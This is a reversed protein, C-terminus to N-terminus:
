DGPTDGTPSGTPAPSAPTDGYLELTWAGRDADSEIQFVVPGGPQWAFVQDVDSSDIVPMESGAVTHVTIFFIGDGRHVARASIAPGDYYLLGNGSGDAFAGEIPDTELPAITATFAEDSRFWVELDGDTPMLVAVSDEEIYGMSDPWARDDATADFDVEGAPTASVRVNVDEASALVLPDSSREAAPIRLVSGGAPATIVGGALQVEAPDDQEWPYDGNGGGGANLGNDGWTLPAIAIFALIAAFIGGLTWVTRSFRDIRTAADRSLTNETAFSM